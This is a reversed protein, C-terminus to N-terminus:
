KQEPFLDRAGSQSIRGAHGVEKYGSCATAGPTAAASPENLASLKAEALAEGVQKSLSFHGQPKM